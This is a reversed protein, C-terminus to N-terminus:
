TAQEEAVAIAARLDAITPTNQHKIGSVAWKAAALLAAHTNVAAIILRRNAFEQGGIGYVKVTRGDANEIGVGDDRWPLPSHEPATMTEKGSGAM